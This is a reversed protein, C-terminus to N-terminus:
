RKSFPVTRDGSHFRSKGGRVTKRQEFMVDSLLFHTKGGDIESIMADFALDVAQIADVTNAFTSQRYPSMDVRTNDIFLKVLAFTPWESDTM